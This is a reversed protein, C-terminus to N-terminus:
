QIRPKKNIKDFYDKPDSVDIQRALLSASANTELVKRQGQVRWHNKFMFDIHQRRLASTIRM